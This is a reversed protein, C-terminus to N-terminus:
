NGGASEQWDVGPELRIIRTPAPAQLSAPAVAALRSSTRQGIVYGALVSAVIAAALTTARWARGSRVRRTQHPSSDIIADTAVVQRLALWDVLRERGAAASLADILGASDVREGDVFLDIIEDRDADNM